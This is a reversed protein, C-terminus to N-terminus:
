SSAPKKALVLIAFATFVFYVLPYIIDEFSEVGIVSLILLTILMFSIVHVISFYSLWIFTQELYRRKRPIVTEGSHYLQKKLKSKEWKALQLWHALGYFIVVAVFAAFLGLLM